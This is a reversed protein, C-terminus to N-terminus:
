FKSASGGTLMYVFFYIGCALHGLLFLSELWTYWKVRFRNNVWEKVLITISTMFVFFLGHMYGWAFNADWIRPGDEYFLLFMLLGAIYAAWSLGFLVNNKLERIHFLLFVGPFLVALLIALKIGPTWLHWAVAVGFKMGGGTGEEFVSYFQYLLAAITPITCAVLALDYRDLRFKKKIWMGIVAVFMVPAFALVFSPKTLVSLLLYIGLLVIDKVKTTKNNKLLEGFQLFLLIAFPRTAIYTANHYPNPSFVGLYRHGWGETSAGEFPNFLMSVLFIALVTAAVAVSEATMKKNNSDDSRYKDSDFVYDSVYKCVAICGIVNLVTLALSVAMELPVLKSLMKSFVFFLPYPFSYGSDMGQIELLYAKMDSFYVTTDVSVCQKYFLYSMLLSYVLIPIFILYNQKNNRNLM